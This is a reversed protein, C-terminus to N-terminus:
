SKRMELEVIGVIVLVMVIVQGVVLFILMNGVIKDNKDMVFLM